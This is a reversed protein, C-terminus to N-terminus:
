VEEQMVEPVPAMQKRLRRVAWWNHISDMVRFGLWLGITTLMCQGAVIVIHLLVRGVIAM